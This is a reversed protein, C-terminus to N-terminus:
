ENVQLRNAERVQAGLESYEIITVGAATLREAGKGVVFTSPERLAFVVRPIGADQILRSCSAPRSKRQRVTGDLQLDDRHGRLGEDRALGVSAVDVGGQFDEFAEAAADRQEVLGDDAERSRTPEPELWTRSCGCRVARSTRGV